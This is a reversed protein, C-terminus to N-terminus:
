PKSLNRKTEGTFAPERTRPRKVSVSAVMRLGFSSSDRVLTLTSISPSDLGASTASQSPRTYKAQVGPNAIMVHDGRGGTLAEALTSKPDLSERHQDLTAMEINAGFRITGSDPPNAGTLLNILTTKGAGNPGVIGIRDGRQVRISFNDVIARDGYSKGIGKAEIILKGSKDAEAAALNASGTAGRYDRREARLTHLNGLRKVNRKRRGSVGYRLWHEEAVIKRDLKHQDREEEALM